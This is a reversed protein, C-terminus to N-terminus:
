KASLRQVYSCVAIPVKKRQHSRPKVAEGIRGIVQWRHGLHDIYDGVVPDFPCNKLVRGQVERLEAYPLTEAVEQPVSLELVWPKFKTNAKAPFDGYALEFETM